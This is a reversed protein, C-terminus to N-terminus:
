LSKERVNINRLRADPLPPRPTESNSPQAALTELFVVLKRIIDLVQTFSLALRKASNWRCHSDPPIIAPLFTQLNMVASVLRWPLAVSHVVPSPRVVIKATAAAAAMLPVIPVGIVEPALLPAVLGKGFSLIGM